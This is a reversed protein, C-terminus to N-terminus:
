IYMFFFYVLRLRLFTDSHEFSPFKISISFETPLIDCCIQVNGLYKNYSKSTHHFVINRLRVLATYFPFSHMCVIHRMSCITMLHHHFYRCPFRLAPLLWDLLQTIFKMCSEIQVINDHMIRRTSEIIFCPALKSYQTIIIFFHNM